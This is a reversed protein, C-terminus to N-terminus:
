DHDSRSFLKEIGGKYFDDLDPQDGDTPLGDPVALTGVIKNEFRMYGSFSHLVLVDVDREDVSSSLDLEYESYRSYQGERYTAIVEALKALEAENGDLQLWFRWTEGEHDNEETFKVFEM